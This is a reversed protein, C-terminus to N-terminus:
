RFYTLLSYLYIIAGYIVMTGDLLNTKIVEETISSGDQTLSFVAPEETLGKLGCKLTANSNPTAFVESATIDTTPYFTPMNEGVPSM